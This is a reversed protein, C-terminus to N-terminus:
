ACDARHAWQGAGMKADVYVTDGVRTLVRQFATVLEVTVDLDYAISAPHNGRIKEVEAFRHPDILHLAAWEDARREQKARAPGYVTPVDGFVHHAIEHALVSRAVRRPLDPNLRISTSGHHYGGLKLGRREIVTLGLDEALKLLDHLASGGLLTSM